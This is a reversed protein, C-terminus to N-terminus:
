LIEGNFVHERLVVLLKLTKMTSEMMDLLEHKVIHFIQLVNVKSRQEIFKDHLQHSEEQIQKNQQCCQTVKTAQIQNQYTQHKIQVMKQIKKKFKKFKRKSNEQRNVAVYDDRLQQELVTKLHLLRTLKPISKSINIKNKVKHLRRQLLKRRKDM